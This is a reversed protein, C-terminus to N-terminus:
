VELRLESLHFEVGKVVVLQVVQRDVHWIQLSCCPGFESSVEDVAFFETARKNPEQVKVLIATFNDINVLMIIRPLSLVKPLRHLCVMLCGVLRTSLDFKLCLVKAHFSM